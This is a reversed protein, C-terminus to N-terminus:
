KTSRDERAQEHHLGLVHGIEHIANGTSCDPALRVVQRGGTMGVASGCGLGPVFEVYNGSAESIEMFRIPTAAEWEAIASYVRARNDLDPSM